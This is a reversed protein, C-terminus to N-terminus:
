VEGAERALGWHLGSRAKLAPEPGLAGRPLHYVGAHVRARSEGPARGTPLHLGRAQKRMMLIDTALKGDSLDSSCGNLFANRIESPRHGPLYTMLPRNAPFMQAMRKHRRSPNCRPRGGARRHTSRTRSPPREPRWIQQVLSQELGCLEWPSGPPPGDGAESSPTRRHTAGRVLGQPGVRSNTPASDHRTPM